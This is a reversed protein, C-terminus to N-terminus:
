NSLINFVKLKQWKGKEKKNTIQKENLKCLLWLKEERGERQGGDEVEAVRGEDVGKVKGNVLPCAPLVLSRGVADLSPLAVRCLFLKGFALEFM